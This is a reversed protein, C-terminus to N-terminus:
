KGKKYTGNDSVIIIADYLMKKPRILALRSAMEIPMRYDVELFYQNPLESVMLKSHMTYGYMGSFCEDIYQKTLLGCVEFVINDPSINYRTLYNLTM